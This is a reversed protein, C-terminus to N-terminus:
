KLINTDFNLSSATKINQYRKVPRLIDSTQYCASVPGTILVSSFKGFNKLALKNFTKGRNLIKKLEKRLIRISFEEITGRVPIDKPIAVHRTTDIM